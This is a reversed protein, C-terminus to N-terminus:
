HVLQIRALETSISHNFFNVSVLLPKLISHVDFTLLSVTGRPICDLIQLAFILLNITVCNGSGPSIKRLLASYGVSSM